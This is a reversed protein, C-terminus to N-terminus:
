ITLDNEKKLKMGAIFVEAIGFALLAPLLYREFIGIFNTVSNWFLPMHGKNFAALMFIFNFFLLVAAFWLFLTAIKRIKNEHKEQFAGGDIISKLINRIIILIVISFGRLLVAKLIVLYTITNFFSRLTDFKESSPLSDSLGSFKSAYSVSKVFTYVISIFILVLAVEIFRLILTLNKNKAEM